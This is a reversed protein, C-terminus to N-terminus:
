LFTVSLYGRGHRERLRTLFNQTICVIDCGTDVSASRCPEDDVTVTSQQIGLLVAGPREFSARTVAEFRERQRGRLQKLEASESDLQRRTDMSLLQLQVTDKVAHADAFTLQLARGGV